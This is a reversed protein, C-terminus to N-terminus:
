RTCGTLYQNVESIAAKEDMSGLALCAKIRVDTNTDQMVDIISQILETRPNSVKLEPIFLLVESKIKLDDNRVLNSLMHIIKSTCTLLPARELSQSLHKRIIKNEHYFSYQIYETIRVLLEDYCPASSKISMAELCVIVFQIHRIGVLDIPESMISDWFINSSFELDDNVLLGSMFTFVLTYRQNYKQYKIFEIAQESSPKRLPHMVYRAAFYEQFSLHIFYHDKDTEIQTGIGKQNFSKLIGLNLAHPCDQFSVKADESAKNLLPPRIM